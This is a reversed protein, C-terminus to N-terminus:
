TLDEPVEEVEPELHHGLPELVLQRASCRRM